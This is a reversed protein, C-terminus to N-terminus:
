GSAYFFKAASVDVRMEMTATIGFNGTETITFTAANRGAIEVAIMGDVIGTSVAEVAVAADGIRM